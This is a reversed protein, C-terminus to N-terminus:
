MVVLMARSSLFMAGFTDTVLAQWCGDVTLVLGVVATIEYQFMGIMAEM